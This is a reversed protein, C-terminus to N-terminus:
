NSAAIIRKGQSPLDQGLPQIFDEISFVRGEEVPLNVHQVGLLHGPGLLCFVRQGAQRSLFNGTQCSLNSQLVPSVQFKEQVTQEQGKDAAKTFSCFVIFGAPGDIRGLQGM